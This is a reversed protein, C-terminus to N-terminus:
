QQPQAWADASSPADWQQQGQRQWDSSAAADARKKKGSSRLFLLAVVLIIAALIIVIIVIIASPIAFAFIATHMPFGGM